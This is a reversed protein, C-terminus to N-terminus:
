ILPMLSKLVSNLSFKLLYGTLDNHGVTLYISDDSSNIFSSTPYVVYDFYKNFWEGQHLSDIYIPFKSIGSLKFMPSSTFTYAGFIYTTLTNFKISYRSHFFGLYENNGIYVPNSGGRIEGFSWKLTSHTISITKAIYSNEESKKELTVVHLPNITQLLYLTNNFIFPVWNKHKTNPNTDPLIQLTDSSLIQNGKKTIASLSIHFVPNEVALYLIEDNFAVLRADAGQIATKSDKWPVYQDVGLYQSTMLPYDTINIWFYNLKRQQLRSEYVLIAQRNWLVISPNKCGNCIVEKSLLLPEFDQLAHTIQLEFLVVDDPSFSNRKIMPIEKGINLNELIYIPLKIVDTDPNFDPKISSLTDMPSLLKKIYGSILIFTQNYFSSESSCTADCQVISMSFGKCFSLFGFLFWIFYKM